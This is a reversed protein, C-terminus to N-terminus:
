RGLSIARYLGFIWVIPLVFFLFVWGRLKIGLCEDPSVAVMAGVTFFYFLCWSILVAFFTPM